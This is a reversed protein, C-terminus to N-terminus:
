ILQIMCIIEEDKNKMIYVGPTLPLIGADRTGFLYYDAMRQNLNM